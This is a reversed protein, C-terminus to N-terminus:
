QKDKEKVKARVALIRAEFYALDGDTLTLAFRENEQNILTLIADGRENLDSLSYIKLAMKSGLGIEAQM